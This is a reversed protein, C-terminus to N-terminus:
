DLGCIQVLKLYRSWGCNFFQILQGGLLKGLDDPSVRSLLRVPPPIILLLNSRGLFQERL